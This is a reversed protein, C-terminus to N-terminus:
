GKELGKVQQLCERLGETWHPLQVGLIESIKETNLRSNKPRIAPTPYDGSLITEIQKVQFHMGLDRGTEFIAQAFGYWSTEGSNCFHYIGKPFERLDLVKELLDLTGKALHHAYSPAGIQDSVIKLVEREKGLRLMTKLFNKGVADYVWSTRLILYKEHVQVIANEGELKSWGYVNLPQTGDTETWPKQGEGSFVYDTSYHIFPIDRKACFQAIIKPTEANVRFCLDKEKEAQDVQTYAAANIVAVLEQELFRNELELQAMKPFSFDIDKRGLAVLEVRYDSCLEILARSIQGTTGLVLIKGPIKM